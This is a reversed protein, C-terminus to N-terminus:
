MEEHMVPRTLAISLINQASEMTFFNFPAFNCIKFPMISKSAAIHASDYASKTTETSIFHYKPTIKLLFLKCHSSYIL